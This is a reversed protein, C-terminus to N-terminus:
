RWKGIFRATICWTSIQGLTQVQHFSTHERIAYTELTNIQFLMQRSSLYQIYVPPASVKSIVAVANTKTTSAYTHNHKFCFGGQVAPTITKM